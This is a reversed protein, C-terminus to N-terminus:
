LELPIVQSPVGCTDGRTLGACGAALSSYRRGTALLKLLLAVRSWLVDSCQWQLMQNVCRSFISPDLTHFGQAALTQGFNSVADPSVACLVVAICASPVTEKALALVVNAVALAEDGVRDSSASRSSDGCLTPCLWLM